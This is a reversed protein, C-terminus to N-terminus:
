PRRAPKQIASELPLDQREHVNLAIVRTFAGYGRPHGGALEGDSSVNTHPWTLLAAIGEM